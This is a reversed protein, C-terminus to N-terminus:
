KLIFYITTFWFLINISTLFFVYFYEAIMRKAFQIDNKQEKMYQLHISDVKKKWKYCAIFGSFYLSIFPSILLRSIRVTKLNM